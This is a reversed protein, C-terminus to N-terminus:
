SPKTSAMKLRNNLERRTKCLVEHTKRANVGFYMLVVVAPIFVLLAAAYIDAPFQTRLLTFSGFAFSATATLMSLEFYFMTALRSLYRHGVPAPSNSQALYAFWNEEIDFKVEREKDWRVELWTGLTECLLGAIVAAAFSVANAVTTYQTAYGLTAPTYLVLWLLWPAVAVAGPILVVLLSRTLDIPM